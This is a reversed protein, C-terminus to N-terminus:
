KTSQAVYAKLIYHNQIEDVKSIKNEIMSLIDQWLQEGGKEIARAQLENVSHWVDMYREKNMTECYPMQLYVCDKFDGTSTIIEQWDKAPVIREVKPLMEKISNEIDLTLPNKAVDRIRWIACFYGGKKLIRKFEALAKVHDPWHFSDAMSVFNLSDDKLTTYEGSGAFFEIDPLNKQGQVRMEDNPEVAIIKANSATNKLAMTMKGTGAGIDAISFEEGKQYNAIKLIYEVMVESYAPRSHYYKALESFDGLKM